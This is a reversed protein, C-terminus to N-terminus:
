TLRGNHCADCSYSAHSRSSPRRGSPMNAGPKYLRLVSVSSRSCVQHSATGQVSKKSFTKSICRDGKVKATFGGSLRFEFRVDSRDQLQDAPSKDLIHQATIALSLGSMSASVLAAMSWPSITEAISGRSM